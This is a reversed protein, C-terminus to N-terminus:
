LERFIKSVSTNAVKRQMGLGGLVCIFIGGAVGDIFVWWSFDLHIEFVFNALAWGIMLAGLAAMAGSVAGIVGLELLFARRIQQRRAGM